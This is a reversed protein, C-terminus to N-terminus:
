RTILIYCGDYNKHYQRIDYADRFYIKSEGTTLLEQIHKDVDVYGQAFGYPGVTDTREFGCMRDEYTIYSKGLWKAKDDQYYKEEVGHGLMLKVRNKLDRLNKETIHWSNIAYMFDNRTGNEWNKKTAYFPNFEATSVTIKYRNM